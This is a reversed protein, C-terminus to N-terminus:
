KKRGIPIKVSVKPKVTLKGDPSYAGQASVRVPGVSASAGGHFGQSATGEIYDLRMDVGHTRKSEPFHLKPKFPQEKPKQMMPTSEEVEGEEEGEVKGGEDFRKIFEEHKEVAERSKSRKLVRSGDKSYLVFVDGEKRIM